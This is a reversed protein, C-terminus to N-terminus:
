SMHGCLEKLVHHTHMKFIRASAMCLRMPWDAHASDVCYSCVIVRLACIRITIPFANVICTFARLEFWSGLRTKSRSGFRRESRSELGHSCLWQTSPLVVHVHAGPLFVLCHSHKAQKRWFSTFTLVGWSKFIGNYIFNCSIINSSLDQKIMHFKSSYFMCIIIHRYTSTCTPTLVEFAHAQCFSSNWAFRRMRERHEEPHQHFTTHPQLIIIERGWLLCVLLCFWIIQHAAAFVSTVSPCQIVWFIKMRMSCELCYIVPLVPNM